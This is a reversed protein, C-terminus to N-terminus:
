EVDQELLYAGGGGAGRVFDVVRYRQAFLTLFLRRTTLRWRLAIDPAAAMM